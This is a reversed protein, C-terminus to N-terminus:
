ALAWESGRKIFKDMMMGMDNLVFRCVYFGFFEAARRTSLELGVHTQSSHKLGPDEVQRAIQDPKKAKTLQCLFFVIKMFEKGLVQVAACLRGLAAMYHANPGIGQVKSTERKGSRPNASSTMPLSRMTYIDKSGEKGGFVSGLPPLGPGVSNKSRLRRWSSLYSKGSANTSKTSPTEATSVTDDTASSGKFLGATGQVGVEGGLKKALLIQVQDLITEFSQMEKLVADADLMDVMGVKLLAATLLDCNSVKEDVAKLKVNKVRWIDRPVFLRNSLYAGRPHALTHYFSRLLWFPRLVFSEPCPELPLPTNASSSNPSGPSTPYHIDHDLYHMGDTPLGNAIFTAGIPTPIDPIMPITGNRHQSTASFSKTLPTNPSDESLNPTTSSQKGIKLSTSSFTKRLAEFDTTKDHQAPSNPVPPVRDDGNTLADKNSSPTAPSIGSTLEPTSSEPLPIFLSRSGSRPLTSPKFTSNPLLQQSERLISASKPPESIAQAPLISPLVLPPQTKPATMGPPLRTNTDIKLQKIKQGSLRRERVGPGTVAVLSPPRPPKSNPSAVPLSIGDLRPPPPLAGVPPPHAPPPTPNFHHQSPPWPITSAEAVTSLSTGATAPNSGISSGWTRGSFSSSNSQRPLASKSQLDYDMDDLIFDRTMEELIREEEESEDETYDADISNSRERLVLTEQLRKKEQNKALAIAAECEAERVRQKALDVNKRADSVFVDSAMQPAPSTSQEEADDVMPEFGDDYAAEVAADLAADFEAETAGSPARMRKRRLGVSSSRSHVSCASSGGSEDITDLWSTSEATEQRVHQPQTPVSKTQSRQGDIPLIPAPIAPSLPRRPSLPPPMYEKVMPPALGSTTQLVPDQPSDSSQPAKHSEQGNIHQSSNAIDEESFTFPMLSQRRPPLQERTLTHSPRQDVAQSYDYTVRTATATEIIAAEDDDDTIPSFPDQEKSDLSMPRDPM